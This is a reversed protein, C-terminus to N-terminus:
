NLLDGCTACVDSVNEASGSCQRWANTRGAQALVQPTCTGQTLVVNEEVPLM